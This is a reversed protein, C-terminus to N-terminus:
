CPGVVVLLRPDSQGLIRIVRERSEAVTRNAAETAPLATKLARPTLLRVAANVHLNQTRFMTKNFCWFGFVFCWFFVL